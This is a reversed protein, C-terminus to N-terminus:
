GDLVSRTPSPLSLDPGDPFVRQGSPTKCLKRVADLRVTAHAVQNARGVSNMPRLSIESLASKLRDEL